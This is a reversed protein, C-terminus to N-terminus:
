SAALLKLERKLPALEGSFSAIMAPLFTAEKVNELKLAHGAREGIMHMFSLQARGNGERFCHIVNLESLFQAAAEIFAARSGGGTFPPHALTQFLKESERDIYDPLCFLNGGKATRVTRHKGAWSYVDQFLHHHIACYHASDFAGAPFPEGARLTTMELEFDRLLDPDRLRAKNKLVPSNKYCYPDDFVEYYPDLSM